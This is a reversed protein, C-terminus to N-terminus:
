PRQRPRIATFNKLQKQKYDLYHLDRQVEWVCFHLYPEDEGRPWESLAKYDTFREYFVIWSIWLSLNPSFTDGFCELLAASHALNMYKDPVQVPIPAWVAGRKSRVDIQALKERVMILAVKTLYLTDRSSQLQHMWRTVIYFHHM